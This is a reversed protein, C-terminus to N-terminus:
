GDRAKEISDLASRVCIGGLREVLTRAFKCLVEINPFDGVGRWKMLVDCDDMYEFGQKAAYYGNAKRLEEKYTRRIRVVDGLGRLEAEELGKVLDHRIGKKGRLRGVPVNKALLFAKLSLEISKCYLFCKV